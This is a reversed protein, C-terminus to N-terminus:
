TKAHRSRMQAINQPRKKKNVGMMQVVKAVDGAHVVPGHAGLAGLFALEWAHAELAFEIEQPSFSRAAQFARSLIASLEGDTLLFTRM